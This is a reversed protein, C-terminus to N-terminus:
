ILEWSTIRTNFVTSTPSEAYFGDLLHTKITKDGQITIIDGIDLYAFNHINQSVTFSCQAMTEYAVNAKEFSQLVELENLPKLKKESKIAPMLKGLPVTVIGTFIAMVERRTKM